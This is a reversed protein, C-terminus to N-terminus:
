WLNLLRGLKPITYQRRMYHAYRLAEAEEGPDMGLMTVDTPASVQDLLERVQRATPVLAAAELIESWSGIVREQFLPFDSALKELYSRQEKEIRESVPGYAFEIERREEEWDPLTAQSLRMEVQDLSLERIRDYREAILITGIGVKAGHLVAPRGQRLLKMEWYHSLHHEAGSAPRTNGNLLM